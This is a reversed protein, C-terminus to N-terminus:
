TKPDEKQQPSYDTQKAQYVGQIPNIDTGTLGKTALDDSHTGENYKKRPCTLNQTQRKAARDGETRTLHHQEMKICYHNEQLEKGPSELQQM